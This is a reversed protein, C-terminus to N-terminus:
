NITISKSSGSSTGRELKPVEVTLVQANFNAKIKSETFPTPLNFCREFHGHDREAVILNRQEDASIRDKRLGSICIVNNGETEVRIDSKQVDPLDALVKYHDVNDVVDVAPLWSGRSRTSFFSNFM